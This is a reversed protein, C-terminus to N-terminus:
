METGEKSGASRGYSPFCHSVVNRGTILFTPTGSSTSSTRKLSKNRGIMKGLTRHPIKNAVKVVFNAMLLHRRACAIFRLATALWWSQNYGEVSYVFCSILFRVNCLFLRVFMNPHFLDTWSLCLSLFVVIVVVVWFPPNHRHFRAHV